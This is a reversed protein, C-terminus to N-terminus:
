ANSLTLTVYASEPIATVGVPQKEVIKIVFGAESYSNLFSPLVVYIYIYIRILANFQVNSLESSAILNAEDKVTIEKYTKIYIYM